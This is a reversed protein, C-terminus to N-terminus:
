RRLRMAGYALAELMISESFPRDMVALEKAGVDEGLVWTRRLLSCEERARAVFIQERWVLSAM